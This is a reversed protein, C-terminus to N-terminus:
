KRRIKLAFILIKPMKIGKTYWKWKTVFLYLSPSCTFLIENKGKQFMAQRKWNHRNLTANKKKEQEDKNKLGSRHCGQRYRIPIPAFFVLVLRQIGGCLLFLHLVM